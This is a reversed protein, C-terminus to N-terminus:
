PDHIPLNYHTTWLVQHSWPLCSTLSLLHHLVSSVSTTLRSGLQALCGGSAPLPAPHIRRPSGPFAAISVKQNCGLSIWELSSRWFESLLREHQKLCSLTCHNTEAAVPFSYVAREEKNSSKREWNDMKTFHHTPKNSSALSVVCGWAKSETRSAFLLRATVSCRHSQDSGTLHM